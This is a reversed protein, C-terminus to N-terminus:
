GKDYVINYVISYLPVVPLMPVIPRSEEVGSAVRACVEVVEVGEVV